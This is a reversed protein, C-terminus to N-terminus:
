EMFYQTYVYASAAVAFATLPVLLQAMSQGRGGGLAAENKDVIQDTPETHSARPKDRGARQGNQGADAKGRRGGRRRQDVKDALTM